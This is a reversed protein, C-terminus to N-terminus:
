ALSERRKQERAQGVAGAFTKLRLDDSSTQCTLEQRMSIENEQSQALVMCIHVHSTPFDSFTPFILKIGLPRNKTEKKVEGKNIDQKGSKPRAGFIHVFELINFLFNTRM